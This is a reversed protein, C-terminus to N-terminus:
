ETILELLAPATEPALGLLRGGLAENATDVYWKGDEPSFEIFETGYDRLVQLNEANLDVWKQDWDREMEAYVEIMLDQLDKPISNWKDLNILLPISSAYIMHNILYKNVEHLKATVAQNLTYIGGDIVGRESASYMEGHAVVVSTGGLAKIFPDLDSHGRIKVGQFDERPNEILANTFLYYGAVNTRNASMPGLYYLGIEKHLENLADVYGGSRQEWAPVERALLTAIEPVLDMYYGAFTYFMDAVGTRVAELQERSPIAEPGGIHEIILKGEARKNVEEIYELEDVTV